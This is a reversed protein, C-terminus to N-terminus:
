AGTTLDRFEILENGVSGHWSEYLVATGDPSPVSAHPQADDGAGPREPYDHWGPYGQTGALDWSLLLGDLGALPM